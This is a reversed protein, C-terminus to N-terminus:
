EIPPLPCADIPLEDNVECYSFPRPAADSIAGHLTTNSTWWFVNAGNDTERRKMNGFVTILDGISLDTGDASPATDENVAKGIQGGVFAGVLAAVAAVIAAVIIALICLIVTACGIAAGVAAAAIIGAAGGIGAGVIAAGAADCVREEYYYCRMIESRRPRLSDTCFVFANGHEVVDWYRSKVIVDVRDHMATFPFIEDLASSFSNVIENVVGAVCERLGDGQLCRDFAFVAVTAIIVLAAVAGSIAGSAAGGGIAVGTAATKGIILVGGEVHIYGIASAVSM